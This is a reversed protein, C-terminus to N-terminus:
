RFWKSFLNKLANKVTNVVTEVAEKVAEEVQERQDETEEPVTTEPVTEEPVTTEPVTTEPVSEEPVSTEPVSEEPVSEEPTEEEAAANLSRLTLTAAAPTMYVSGLVPEEFVEDEVSLSMVSAEAAEAEPASTYTFKINTLSIVGNTDYLNGTNSIVIIDNKYGTLDYYMDTTTDITSTKAGYYKGAVVGTESNTTKAINTITYTGTKGDASKIGIHVNAINAPANLIFAVRQGPALYVENNPGYSVYDSIQADGVSADGDIFVLGEMDTTLADNAVNDFSSAAIIKNRLEIYSPWGEGDAKYADEITTDVNGEEDPINDAAGDNAPDYIRIADLYLDYGPATTDDMASMYTAILEAKYKGYPLDNAQLVPVQYMAKNVDPECVWKYEQNTYTAGDAPNEPATNKVETAGETTIEDGVVSTWTETEADYTYTVKYLGYNYGYYTDVVTNKVKAGNAYVTTGNVKIDEAATVKIALVGTTNSTMSIIDFGTGYFTFEANAYSASGDALPGVHVKKATGLSYTSMNLNVGDYGYINNADTLSYEGPRDESQTAGAIATGEDVWETGSATYTLFSDEYYITTAPIVTVTDYYYGPNTTGTYNVAYAFKEYTQMQMGNSTNLTYRVTGDTNTIATGYTGTYSDGFGSALSEGATTNEIGTTYAGVGALKGNEGFMDNALVSIDVPLGYDIVVTDPLAQTKWLVAFWVVTHTYDHGTVVTEGNENKGDLLANSYASADDADYQMVYTSSVKDAGKAIEWSGTTNSNIRVTYVANSDYLEYGDPLVGLSEVEISSITDLNNLKITEYVVPNTVAVKNAFTGTQGTTQNVIINGDNDVLYFAYSVNAEKWAMVPSVTDKHAPNGLYNDYYLVAYENTPYSGGEKTGEMSGDLYVYYRMALEETYVTGINWYFTESPLMNTSGSTLGASTTGTPISIGEVAVDTPKTNYYFTKARIIGDTGLINDDEDSITYTGDANVTVGYTGDGDKDILNSYAKTGDVSFKVVESLKFGSKRDGIMDSTITDTTSADAEAKTYIEYTGVEIVPALNKTTTTTGNVVNYSKTALQLNFADGMQDVFRANTAAMLVASAINSFADDLEEATDVDFYYEELSAMNSLVIDQTENTVQGNDALLYGITYMTAGMGAVTQLQTKGNTDATTTVIQYTQDPDGKIAEAIRHDQGQGAAYGTYYEKNTVTDPIDDETEYNGLLWNNWETSTYNSYVGNYQFPAGDSMFVVFQERVEGNAWSAKKAALQEYALLLGEDYNTGSGTDINGQDENAWNTSLDMIDVWGDGTEDTLLGGANPTAYAQVEIYNDAGYQTSSNGNGTFGNFCVISIDLDPDSGDERKTQLQQILSNVAPRLITLRSSSFGEVTEQMSSSTDLVVVVDIGQNMPIGSAAIEVQAIGSSQFDIGTATKSVKVAGEDPYEPYNNGERATVNLTFGTVTKGGFTITLNNYTGVVKGNNNVMGLVVDREETSGDSYTVRIKGGTVANSASGRIVSGEADILEIKEVSVPMVTVKIVGLEKGEYTVTGTYTGAVSGNFETDWTVMDSTVAVTSAVTSQDTSTQISVKGLVTSLDTNDANAYVQELTGSLRAYTAGTGGTTTTDTLQYLRVYQTSDSRNWSSGDYYFSYDTGWNSNNYIRFNSGNDTFTLTSSSTSLNFSGSWGSTSYRLYRTGNYVTGSSSGSFTWETLETTSKMTTGDITVSQTGMSTTGQLAVDDEDGVIVYEEGATISTAQTYIYTTTGGTPEAVQVWDGNGTVDEASGTVNVTFSGLTQGEYKVTGTYTGIEGNFPKDWTVMSSTVSITEAVTAGDTSTQIQLNKLVYEENLVQQDKDYTQVFEGTLRAYTDPTAEGATAVKYITINCANASSAGSSTTNSSFSFSGSSNSYRIAGDNYGISFNQYGSYTASAITLNVASSSNAVINSGLYYSTGANKMTITGDGNNTIYWYCGDDITGNSSTITAYGDSTTVKIDGNNEDHFVYGEENPNNGFYRWVAVIYKESSSLDSLSTVQQYGGTSAASGPITVWALEAIAYTSFHTTKFTAVGNAITANMDELNGGNVYYVKAKDSYGTADLTVTAEQGDALATALTIDYANYKSYKTTDALAAVSVDKQITVTNEAPLVVTVNKVTEDDYYTFSGTSGSASGSGSDYGGTLEISENVVSGSYTYRAIDISDSDITIASASCNATTSNAYKGIYGANMYTFNLTETTYNSTGDTGNPVKMSEGKAVYALAGGIEDDYETGSVAPTSHNHGFLFLIDLDKAAENVAEFLINAYINDYYWNAATSRLSWHMPVHSMIIMPRTEDAAILGELYTSLANATATVTAKDEATTSGSGYNGQWWPFSDENILYVIYGDKEYAGTATLTEDTLFGSYDHNGQIAYYPLNEWATTLIGTLNGLETKLNAQSQDDGDAGVSGDTYDGGILALEPTVGANKVATIITEAVTAKNEGQYDSMTIITSASDYTVAEGEGVTVTCTASFEGATATIVAEGMYGFTLVGNDVSAVGPESSTWTVTKDTADEPVVTATLTVPLEGVGVKLATQDLTIGTVPIVEPETAETSPETAETSPETAETSPETAETSPETAETFPETAETSPETAETSPETVTRSRNIVDSDDIPAETSESPAETEESPEGTAETTVSTTETTVTEGNEAAFANVPMYGVTMVICLFLAIVRKLITNM